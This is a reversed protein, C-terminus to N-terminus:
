RVRRDWSRRLATLGERYNPYHLKVGLAQKIRANSVRKNEGYFSRGMPSLEADAFAVKPPPEVGMLQAAFAVVDQPPAPEDDSVNFIGEAQRAMAATVTAAIDDVHIRNFVQGPKAIRHATGRALNVFANRGPGYIGALRFVTLPVNQARAANAWAAEAALRRISRQSNPRCPTEEDVWAGDHNGYVGVTSLYGIWALDRAAALAARGHRLFPDGEDASPISVLLHTATAVLSACDSSLTIGDFVSSNIGKGSLEAAKEASRVTGVVAFGATAAERAIAEGSYGIGLIVVRM